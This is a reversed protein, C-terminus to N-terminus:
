GTAALEEQEHDMRGHSDRGGTAPSACSSGPDCPGDLLLVTSGWPSRFTLRVATPRARCHCHPTARERMDPLRPQRRQCAPRCHAEVQRGPQRDTGTEGHIRPAGPRRGSPAPDFAPRRHGVQLQRRAGTGQGARRGRTPSRGESLSEGPARCSRTHCRRRQGNRHRLSEWFRM